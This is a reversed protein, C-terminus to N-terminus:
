RSSPDGDKIKRKSCSEIISLNMAIEKQAEVPVDKRSLIEKCLSAAEELKGLGYACNALLFLLRFDYISSEVYVGDNPCPISLALKAVAYGM